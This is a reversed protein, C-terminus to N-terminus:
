EIVDFWINQNPDSAILTVSFRSRENLGTLMPVGECDNKLLGLPDNSDGFVQHIDTGFEFQWIGDNIEPDSVDNIQTRLQLLQTITEWNRQQNRSLHWTSENTIEKGSRDRFPIRSPKYHGTVGTATIDFLTRCRIKM